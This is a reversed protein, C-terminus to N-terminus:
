RTGAGDAIQVSVQFSTPGTDTCVSAVVCVTSSPKRAESTTLRGSATRIVADGAM